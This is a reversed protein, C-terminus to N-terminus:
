IERGEELLADIEEIELWIDLFPQILLVSLHHHFIPVSNRNSQEQPAAVEFALSIRSLM